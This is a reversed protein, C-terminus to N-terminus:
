KKPPLGDKLAKRAKWAVRVYWILVGLGVLKNFSDFGKTDIITALIGMGFVVGFYIWSIKKQYQWHAKLLDSQVKNRNAFIKWWAVLTLIGCTLWGWIIFTYTKEVDPLLEADELAVQTPITTGTTPTSSIAQQASSLIQSARSIGQQAAQRLLERSQEALDVQQTQSPSSTTASDPVQTQTVMSPQSAQEFAPAAPTETAEPKKLSEIAVKIRVKDGYALGLEGLDNEGLEKLVELSTIDHSKMVSALQSIGQAELFKELDSQLSTGCKICFKQDDNNETACKTCNKM